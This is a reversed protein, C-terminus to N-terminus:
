RSVTREVSRIYCMIGVHIRDEILPYGRGATGILWNAEGVFGHYVSKECYKLLKQCSFDFAASLRALGRDRALTAAGDAAEAVRSM